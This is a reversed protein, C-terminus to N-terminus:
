NVKDVEYGTAGFFESLSCPLGNVEEQLKERETYKKWCLFIGKVSKRPNMTILQGFSKIDNIGRIVGDYAWFM